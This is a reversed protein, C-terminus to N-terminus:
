IAGRDRPRNNMYAQHSLRKIDRCKGKPRSRSVAAAGRAGPRAVAAALVPFQALPARPWLVDARMALYGTFEAAVKRAYRGFAQRQGRLHGDIAQAAMLGSELAWAVGQSSLPDFAAAADGVAIWDDGAVIAARSSCATVM